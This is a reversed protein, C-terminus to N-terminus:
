FTCLGLCLAQLPEMWETSTASGRWYDLRRTDVFWGQIYIYQKRIIHLDLPLPEALFGLPGKRGRRPPSLEDPFECTHDASCNLTKIIDDKWYKKNWGDFYWDPSASVHEVVETTSYPGHLEDGFQDLAKYTYTTVYHFTGWWSTEDTHHEIEEFLTPQQITLKHDATCTRSEYEYTVRIVVDGPDESPEEAWVSIGKKNVNGRLKAKEEGEEVGIIEWTYSGGSPQGTANLRVMPTFTRRVRRDLKESNAIVVKSPGVIQVTLSPKIKLTVSYLDPTPDSIPAILKIGETGLLGYKVMRVATDTDIAFEENGQEFTYVGIQFWDSSETEKGYLKIEIEM